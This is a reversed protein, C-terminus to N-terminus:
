LVKNNRKKKFTLSAYWIVDGRNTKSYEKKNALYFKHEGYYRIWKNMDISLEQSNTAEILKCIVDQKLEAKSLEKEKQEKVKKEERKALIYADHKKLQKAHEELRRREKITKNIGVVIGVMGLGLISGILKRTKSM